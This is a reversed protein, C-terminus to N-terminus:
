GPQKVYFTISVLRLKGRRNAESSRPDLDIRHQMGGSTFAIYPSKPHLAGALDNGSMMQTRAHPYTVKLNLRQASTEPNTRWEVDIRDILTFKTYQGAIPIGKDEREEDKFTRGDKPVSLYVRQYYGYRIERADAEKREGSEDLWVIIAKKGRAAAEGAGAPSVSAPGSLALALVAM